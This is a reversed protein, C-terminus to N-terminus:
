PRERLVSGILVMGKVAALNTGFAAQTFHEELNM